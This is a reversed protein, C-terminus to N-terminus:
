YNNEVSTLLFSEPTMPNRLGNKRMKTQFFKMRM